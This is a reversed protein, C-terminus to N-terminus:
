RRRGEGDTMATPRRRRDDGDAVGAPERVRQGEPHGGLGRALPQGSGDFGQLTPRRWQDKEAHWLLGKEAIARLVVKTREYRM